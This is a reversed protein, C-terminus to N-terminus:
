KFRTKFIKKNKLNIKLYNQYSNEFIKTKTPFKKYFLSFMEFYKDGPIQYLSKFSSVNSEKFFERLAHYNNTKSLRDLITPKQQIILYSIFDLFESFKDPAILPLKRKSFKVLVINVKPVPYFDSKKFKYIVETEFNNKIILSQLLGENKGLFRNAAEEQMILYAQNVQSNRILIKQIINTTQNFPINSFISFSVDKLKALDFDLFDESRLKFNPNKLNSGLYESLKLDLEFGLVKYGNELLSESIIGKGVGIDIILDNKSLDSRKLIRNIQKKDQLFNQTITLENTM